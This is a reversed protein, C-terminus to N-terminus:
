QSVAKPEDLVPGLSTSGFRPSFFGMAGNKGNIGPFFFTVLQQCYRSYSSV